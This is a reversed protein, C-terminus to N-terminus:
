HSSEQVAQMDFEESFIHLLCANWSHRSINQTHWRQSILPGSRHKHCISDVEFKVSGQRWVSIRRWLHVRMFNILQAAFNEWMEIVRGAQVYDSMWRVSSCAFIAVGVKSLVYTFDEALVLWWQLHSCRRLNPIKKSAATIPAAYTVQNRACKM